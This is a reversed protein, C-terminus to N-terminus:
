RELPPLKTTQKKGTLRNVASLIKQDLSVKVKGKAAYLAAKSYNQFVWAVADSLSHVNCRDDLTGGSYLRGRSGDKAPEWINFDYAKKQNAEEPEVRSVLVHLGNDLKFPWYISEYRVPDEDELVTEQYEAGTIQEQKYRNMYAAEFIIELETSMPQDIDFDWVTLLTYGGKGIWDLSKLLEESNACEDKFLARSGNLDNRQYYVEVPYEGENVLAAHSASPQKGALTATWSNDERLSLFIKNDNM